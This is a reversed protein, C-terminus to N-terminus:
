AAVNRAKLSALCIALEPTAGYVSICSKMSYPPKNRDLGVHWGPKSQFHPQDSLSYVRWGDPILKLAADVSGTYDPAAQQVALRGLPSTMTEIARPLGTAANWYPIRAKDPYLSWFIDGSLERCRVKTNEVREILQLLDARLLQTEMNM